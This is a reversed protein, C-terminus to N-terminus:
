GSGKGARREAKRCELGCGDRLHAIELGFAGLVQAPVVDNRLLEALVVAPAHVADVGHVVGIGAAVAAALPVETRVAFLGNGGSTTIEAWLALRPVSAGKALHHAPLGPAGHRGCGACRNGQM